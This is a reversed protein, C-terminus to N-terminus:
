VGIVRTLDELNCIGRRAKAIGDQLMTRM